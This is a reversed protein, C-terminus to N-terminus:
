KQVTIKKFYFEKQNSIKLIYMGTEFSSMDVKLQSRDIVVEERLENCIRGDLSYLSLKWDQKPDSNIDFYVEGDTIPNPRPDGIINKSKRVYATISNSYEYNGNFDLQKLRYYIEGSTPILRDIFQYNSEHSISGSGAVFGIQHFDKGNTSREVEFGENIYESATTWNLVVDESQVTAEFSLLEVPLTSCNGAIVTQDATQLGAEPISIIFPDSSTSGSIPGSHVILEIFGFKGGKTIGIYGTKPFPSGFNGFNGAYSFALWQANGYTGVNGGNITAGPAFNVVTGSGGNTFARATGMPKLLLTLNGGGCCTFNPDFILFDDVNDGDVDIGVGGASGNQPITLNNAFEGQCQAIAANVSLLPLAAVLLGKKFDFPLHDSVMGQNIACYLDMWKNATDNNKM